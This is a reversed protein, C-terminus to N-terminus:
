RTSVGVKLDCHFSCFLRDTSMDGLHKVWECYGPDCLFFLPANSLVVTTCNYLRGLDCSSLLVLVILPWHKESVWLSSVGLDHRHLAGLIFFTLVFHWWRLTNKNCSCARVCASAHTSTLPYSKPTM